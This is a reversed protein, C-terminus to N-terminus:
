KGSEKKAMAWRRAIFFAVGAVLALAIPIAHESSTFYHALQYGHFHGHGDHALALLPLGAFAAMLSIAKRLMM